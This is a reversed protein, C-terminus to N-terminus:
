RATTQSQTAGRNGRRTPPRRAPRSEGRALRTAPKSLSRELIRSSRGRAGRPSAVAVGRRRCLCIKFHGPELEPGPDPSEGPNGESQTVPEEEPEPGSWRRAVLGQSCSRRECVFGQGWDCRLADGTDYLRLTHNAVLLRIADRGSHHRQGSFIRDGLGRRGRPCISSGNTRFPRVVRPQFRSSGPSATGSGSPPDQFNDRVREFFKEFM